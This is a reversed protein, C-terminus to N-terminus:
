DKLNFDRKLSYTILLRGGKQPATALPKEMESVLELQVPGNALEGLSETAIRLKGNHVSDLQNIGNNIFSTDTLLVRIVDKDRLGTLDLELEKRSITDPLPTSLRIPQFTFKESYVKGNHIAYSIEHPGAFSDVPKHMEYYYGALRSSDAPLQVGDLMVTAGQHVPLADGNEEERFQLLITLKDLGEEAIIRYDLYLKELADGRVAKKDDAKCGSLLLIGAALWGLRKRFKNRWMM